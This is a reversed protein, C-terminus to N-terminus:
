RIVREAMAARRQVALAGGIAACAGGLLLMGFAAFSSTSVTAATADAADKAQQTAQDRAQRLKAQADDFRKAAEDHSIKMQAAMIAIIREKAAGADAGGGVFTAFNRAIEKQADEASMSAPDPNAPQLFAKAQDQIMNPSVGAADAVPKAADSIGSGAASAVSGIASFGGGIISGVASTLLYLTLLTAIGWTVLGHLLGDFRMEIGALWAAAYGGFFLAICSTVVWWVGAGVGLSGATPTSGANVNVTGLGIGAGLTSLLIQVVIALVVGAIVAAWSIRRHIHAGGSVLTTDVAMRDRRPAGGLAQDSM